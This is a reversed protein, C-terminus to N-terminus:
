KERKVVRMFRWWTTNFKKLKWLFQLLLFTLPSYKKEFSILIIQLSILSLFIIYKYLYWNTAWLIERKSHSYINLTYLLIFLHFVDRDDDVFSLCCLCVRRTKKEWIMKKYKEKSEEREKRTTALEKCKMECEESRRKEEHQVRGENRMMRTKKM